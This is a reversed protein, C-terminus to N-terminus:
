NTSGLKYIPLPEEQELIIRIIAYNSPTKLHDEVLARLLLNSFVLDLTNPRCTPTGPELRLELKHADLWDL